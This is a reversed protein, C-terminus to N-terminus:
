LTYVLKQGSVKGQRLQDLGDFVSNLSNGKQMPPVKIKGDQMLQTTLEWFKKGEEFDEKSAPIDHGAFNFAENEITYALTSRNNVDKRPFDSVPLLSSYEGGSSSLSDACIKSSSGAAICDFAYKLNGKTYDKVEKACKDADSYDFAADAGYKKVLDFNKPSCTVVVEYGSLKAFQIAFLGTGTTGGYILLPTKDKIPSTPPSLKLSQYLGQGVTTISVGLTAAEEYSINEPIKM